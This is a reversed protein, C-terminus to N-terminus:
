YFKNLHEWLFIKRNKNMNSKLMRIENYIKPNKHKKENVLQYAHLWDLYNLYKSTFLPYSTLYDILIDNSVNNSTTINFQPHNNIERLIM